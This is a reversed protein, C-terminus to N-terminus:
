LVSVSTTLTSEEEFSSAIPLSLRRGDATEKLIAGRGGIASEVASELVSVVMVVVVVDVM